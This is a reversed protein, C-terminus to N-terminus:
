KVRAPCGQNKSLRNRIGTSKSPRPTGASSCLATIRGDGHAKATWKVDKEAHYREHMSLVRCMEKRSLAFVCGEHVFSLDCTTPVSTYFLVSCRVPQESGIEVSVFGGFRGNSRLTSIETIREEPVSHFGTWDGDRPITTSM